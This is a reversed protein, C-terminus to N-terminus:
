EFGGGCMSLINCHPLSPPVKNKVAPHYCTGQCGKQLFAIANNTLRFSLKVPPDLHDSGTPIPNLDASM